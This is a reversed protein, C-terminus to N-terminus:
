YWQESDHCGNPLNSCTGNNFTGQGTSFSVDYVGDVHKDKGIINLWSDVVTSHCLQCDFGEGDVHKKHEGKLDDPNNGVDHCSGCLSQSPGTWNPANTSYGGDFNGHCYTQSCTRANRDWVSANGALLSWYLEAVSDPDYHGPSTFGSPVIHCDTCEFPNSVYSGEVHTTHAGVALLTTSIEGRLGKPPAGTQNDTGGHCMTCVEIGSGHCVLCLGTDRTLTDIIGNVHASRGIINLVTDVVSAHCDACKLGAFDIHFEHNGLLDSPNDGVDHCSGCDVQDEGTWVPANANNGGPFNGHCYTGRCTRDTRNWTANSGDAFGHWIIEAVSDIVNRGESPIDFHLPDLLFLPVNHCSVCNIGDSLSDGKLHATHAGVALATDSTEGRLGYPPALTSDNSGGHCGNCINQIKHCDICSIEVKGGSWDRGHCRTCSQLGSALAVKGHFERSDTDMWNGPHAGALTSTARQDSCSIFGIVIQTVLFLAIFLRFFLNNATNNM